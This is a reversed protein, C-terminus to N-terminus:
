RKNPRQSNFGSSKEPILGITPKLMASGLSPSISTLASVASYKSPATGPIYLSSAEMSGPTSGHISSSVGVPAVSKAKPPSLQFQTLLLGEGIVPESQWLAAFM